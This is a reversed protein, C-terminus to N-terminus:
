ALTQRNQPRTPEILSISACLQVRTVTPLRGSMTCRTAYSSITHQNQCLNHAECPIPAPKLQFLRPNSTARLAVTFSIVPIRIRLKAHVNSLTETINFLTCSQHCPTTDRWISHYLIKRICRQNREHEGRDCRTFIARPNSYLKSDDDPSSPMRTSVHQRLISEAGLRSKGSTESTASM